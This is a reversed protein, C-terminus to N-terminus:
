DCHSSKGASNAAVGPVGWLVENPAPNTAGQTGRLDERLAAAVRVRASSRPPQRGGRGACAKASPQREVGWSSRPPQQGGCVRCVECPKGGGTGGPFKAHPEGGQSRRPFM